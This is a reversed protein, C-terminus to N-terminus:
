LKIIDGECNEYEELWVNGAVVLRNTNPEEVKDVGHMLWPPWAFIDGDKQNIPYIKQGHDDTFYFCKESSSDIIHNFSIVEGGTFHEHPLHTTTESNYMQTWVNFGYKRCRSHLGLDMMMRKIVTGYYPVLIDTFKDGGKYYSTYFRDKQTHENEIMDLIDSKVDEPIIINSSWILM